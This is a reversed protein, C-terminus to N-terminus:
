ERHKALEEYTPYVVSERDASDLVAEVVSLVELAEDISVGPSRGGILADRFDEHEIKLPERKEVAYRISNGESVGAFHGVAEWGSSGASNEIFTLNASLTDAVLAGMEGTVVTVREKHPSLWNVLHSTIIGNSLRGTVMVLDEHERGAKHVMRAFVSDYRSQSVWSTLDFDHTGLDSVVGVDRIRPSFPGQRRTVIQHVAGLQGQELRSRMEMIAPNFREIHGVGAILQTRRVADSIERGESLSAALPKEVLFPIGAIALRLCIDRHFETPSAVVCYDVRLELLEDLSPVFLSSDVFINSVAVPDFVAALEVGDIERLVRAHHVGMAGMGVLGARLITM